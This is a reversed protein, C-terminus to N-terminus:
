LLPGLGLPHLARVLGGQHLPQAQRHGEHGSVRAVDLDGRGQVQGHRLREKSMLIPSPYSRCRRAEPRRSTEQYIIFVIFATLWWGWFNQLPVGFYVGKVDWVWHGSAVMLPDLSLDWATM